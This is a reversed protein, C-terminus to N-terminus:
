YALENESDLQLKRRSPPTNDDINNRRLIEQAQEYLKDNFCSTCYWCEQDTVFRATDIFIMGQIEHLDEDIVYKLSVCSTRTHLVGNNTKYIYKGLHPEKNDTNEKEHGCSACLLSIFILVVYHMIKKKM